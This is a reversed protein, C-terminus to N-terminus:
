PCEKLSRLNDPAYGDPKAKLYQGTVTFAAVGTTIEAITDNEAFYWRQGDQYMAASKKQASM